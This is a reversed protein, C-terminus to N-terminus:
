RGRWRCARWCTGRRPTPRAPRSRSACCITPRCTACACSPQSRTPPLISRGCGAIGRAGSSRPRTSPPPLAARRWPPSCASSARGPSTSSSAPLDPWARWRWTAASATARGTSPARWGRRRTSRARSRPAAGNTPITSSGSAPFGSRARWRPSRRWTPGMRARSGAGRWAISRRRSRSCAARFGRWRRRACRGRGRAAKWRM